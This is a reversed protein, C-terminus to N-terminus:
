LIKSTCSLLNATIVLVAGILILYIISALCGMGAKALEEM